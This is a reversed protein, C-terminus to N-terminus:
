RFQWPFGKDNKNVIEGIIELYIFVPGTLAIVSGGRRLSAAFSLFMYSDYIIPTAFFEAVRTPTIPTGIIPDVVNPADYRYIYNQSPNQEIISTGISNQYTVEKNEFGHVQFLDVRDFEERFTFFFSAILGRFVFAQGNDLRINVGVGPDRSGFETPTSSAVAPRNLTTFIQVSM